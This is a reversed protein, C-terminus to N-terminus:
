PTGMFDDLAEIIQERKGLYFILVTGQTYLHTDNKWQNKEQSQIFSARADTAQQETTYRYIQISDGGLTVLSGPVTFNSRQIEGIYTPALDYSDFTNIIKAVEVPIDKIQLSQAVVSPTSFPIKVVVLLLLVSAALVMLITSRNQKFYSQVTGIGEVFASPKIKAVYM